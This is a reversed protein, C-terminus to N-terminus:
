QPNNGFYFLNYFSFIYIYLIHILFKRMLNTALPIQPSSIKGNEENTNAASSMTDSSDENQTNEGIHNNYVHTQDNTGDSGMNQKIASEVKLHDIM